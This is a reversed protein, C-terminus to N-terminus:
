AVFVHSIAVHFQQVQIYAPIETVFEVLRYLKSM